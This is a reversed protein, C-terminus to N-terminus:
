GEAEPGEGKGTLSGQADEQAAEILRNGLWVAQAQTMKAVGVDKGGRRVTLSVKGADAKVEFRM